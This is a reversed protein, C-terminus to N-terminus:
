KKTSFKISYYLPCFGVFGTILLIAALIGLIIATTGSIVNTFWFIGIVMAVIVRLYRDMAGLNLPLKM